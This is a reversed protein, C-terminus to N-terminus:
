KRKPAAPKWGAIAGVPRKRIYDSFSFDLRAFDKDAFDEDALVETSGETTGDGGTLAQSTSSM